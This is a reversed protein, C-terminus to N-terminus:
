LMVFLLLWAIGVSAALSTALTPHLAWWRILRGSEYLYRLQAETKQAAHRPGEAWISKSPPDWNIVVGNSLRVEIDKGRAGAAQEVSQIILGARLLDDVLAQLDKRFTVAM